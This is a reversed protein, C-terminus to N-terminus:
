IKFENSIRSSVFNNNSVLCLTQNVFTHNHLPVNSINNILNLYSGGDALAVDWVSANICYPYTSSDRVLCTNNVFQLLSYFTSGQGHQITNKFSNFKCNIIYKMPFNTGQPNWYSLNHDLESYFYDNEHYTKNNSFLNNNRYKAVFINNKSNELFSVNHGNISNLYCKELNFGGNVWCNYGNTLSTQLYINKVSHFASEKGTVNFASTSIIKNKFNNGLSSNITITNSTFTSHKGDYCENSYIFLNGKQVHINATAIQTNLDTSDGTNTLISDIFYFRFKSGTSVDNFNSSTGVANWTVNELIVLNDWFNTVNNTIVSETYTGSRVYIVDKTTAVNFAGQITAFPNNLDYNHLGTRIDTGNLADVYIVKNTLIEAKYGSLADDIYVKPTLKLDHTPSSDWAGSPDSLYKLSTDADKDINDDVLSLFSDHINVNSQRHESPLIDSTTNDQLLVTSDQTALNARSLKTM